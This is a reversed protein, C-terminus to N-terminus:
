AYPGWTFPSLMCRRRPSKPTVPPCPYTIVHNLFVSPPTLGLAEPAVAWGVESPKRMSSAWGPVTLSEADAKPPSAPSLPVQYGRFAKADDPLTGSHIRVHPETVELTLRARM